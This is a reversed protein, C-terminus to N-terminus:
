EHTNFLAPPPFRHQVLLFPLSITFHLFGLNLWRVLWM